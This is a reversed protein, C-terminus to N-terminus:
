KRPPTPPKESRQASFQSYLVAAADLRADDDDTMSLSYSEDNSNQILHSTPMEVDIPVRVSDVDPLSSMPEQHVTPNSLPGGLVPMSIGPIDKCLTPAM